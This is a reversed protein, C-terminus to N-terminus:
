RRATQPAQWTSTQPAQGAAHPKRLEGPQPKHILWKRLGNKTSLRESDEPKASSIGPAVPIPQNQCLNVIKPIIEDISLYRVLILLARVQPKAFHAESSFLSVANM